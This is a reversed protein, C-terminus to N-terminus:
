NLSTLIYKKVKIPEYYYNSVGSYLDSEYEYSKFKFDNNDCKITFTKIDKSTYKIELRTWNRNIWGYGSEDYLETDGVFRCKPLSYTFSNNEFSYIDFVNRIYPSDYNEELNYTEEEYTGDDYFLKYTLNGKNLHIDQYKSKTYLIFNYRHDDTGDDAWYEQYVYGLILNFKVESLTNFNLKKTLNQTTKNGDYRITVNNRQTQNGNINIKILGKKNTSYDKTKNNFTIHIRTGQSVPKWQDIYQNPQYKIKLVINNKQSLMVNKSYNLEFKVKNKVLNKGVEFKKTPLIYNINKLEKNTNEVKINYTGSKQPTYKLIAMGEKTKKYYNKNNIKFLIQEGTPKEGNKYIMEAKIYMPQKLNNKSKLNLTINSNQRKVKIIHTIQNSPAYFEDGKFFSTIKYTGESKPTFNIIDKEPKCIQTGDIDSLYEVTNQTHFTKNNIKVILDKNEILGINNYDLQKTNKIEEYSLVPLIKLTVGVNITKKTLNLFSVHTHTRNLVINKNITSSAYEKNGLFNITINNITKLKIKNIQKSEIKLKFEGNAVKKNFTKKNLQIKVTGNCKIKEDNKNKIYFTIHDPLDDGNYELYEAPVIKTTIKTIKTTGIDNSPAYQKNGMYDVMISYNGVGNLTIKKTTAVGKKDTKVKYSNKNVKVIVYQDKLAKNKNDTLKAKVQLQDKVEYQKKVNSITIKTKTKSTATKVNEKTNNKVIKKDIFKDKVANSSITVSVKKSLKDTDTNTMNTASAISLGLVLLIAVTVLM